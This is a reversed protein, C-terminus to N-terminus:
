LVDDDLLNSLGTQLSMILLLDDDEADVSESIRHPLPCGPPTPFSPNGELTQRHLEVEHAIRDGLHGLQADGNKGCTCVTGDECEFITHERAAVAAVVRDGKAGGTEIRKMVSERSGYVAVRMPLPQASSSGLGLRGGADVGWTYAEGDATVAVTHITATSVSRVVKGALAGGVKTPRWRVADAFQNGLGLQGENNRGWAFLEGKNTIAFSHAEGAAAAEIRHKVLEYVHMPILVERKFHQSIAAKRLGLRGENFLGWSYLHGDCAAVALSHAEGASVCSIRPPTDLVGIADLDCALGDLRGSLARARLSERVPAVPKAPVVGGPVMVVDQVPRQWATILRPTRQKAVDGHGLRGSLGDGCSYVRGDRTLMLTHKEGCSAQVIVEANLGAIPRPLAAERVDDGLGLAGCGSYGWSYAIGKSSLAVSHSLGASVAVIDDKQEVPTPEAVAESGPQPYEASHGLHMGSGWSLISGVRHLEAYRSSSRICLLSHKEAAAITSPTAELRRSLAEAFFYPRLLPEDIPDRAPVHLCLRRARM